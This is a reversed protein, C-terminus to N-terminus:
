LIVARPEGRPLWRRLPLSQADTTPFATATFAARAAVRSPVPQATALQTAPADDSTLPVCGALGAVLWLLLAASTAWCRAFWAASSGGLVRTGMMSVGRAVRIMTGPSRDVRARRWM